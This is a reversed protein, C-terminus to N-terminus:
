LGARPRPSEPRPVGLPPPPPVDSTSSALLWLAIWVYWPLSRLLTQVRAQELPLLGLWWGTVVEPLAARKLRWLLLVYVERRSLHPTPRHDGRDEQGVYLCVGLRGAQLDLGFGVDQVDKGM